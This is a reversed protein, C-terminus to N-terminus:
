VLPPLLYRPTNSLEKDLNTGFVPLLTPARDEKRGKELGGGWRVKGEKLYIHIYLASRGGRGAGGGQTHSINKDLM